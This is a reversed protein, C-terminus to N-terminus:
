VWAVTSFIAEKREKVSSPSGGRAAAARCGQRSPLACLEASCARPPEEEESSETCYGPGDPLSCQATVALPLRSGPTRRERLRWRSPTGEM